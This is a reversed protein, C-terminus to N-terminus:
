GTKKAGIVLWPSPCHVGSKTDNPCNKKGSVVAAAIMLAASLM